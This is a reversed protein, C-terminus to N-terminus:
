KCLLLFLGAIIMSLFPYVIIRVVQKKNNFGRDKWGECDATELFIKKFYGVTMVLWQDQVIIDYAKM